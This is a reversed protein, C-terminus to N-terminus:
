LQPVARTRDRTRTRYEFRADKVGSVGLLLGVAIDFMTWTERVDVAALVDYSSPM